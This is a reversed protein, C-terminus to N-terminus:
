QEGGYLLEFSQYHNGTYYILGDNSFVIRKSGRSSARLTDIDCEYYVRGKKGPLRGEFNGFRDGGICADEKFPRLDEGQWGLARAEKKTIFNKPLEGYTLIYLAVDDKSTYVGDRDLTQQKEAAKTPEPTSKKEATPAATPKVTKRPTPAPTAKATRQATELALTSEAAAVSSAPAPSATPQGKTGGGFVLWLIVALALLALGLLKQRGTQNNQGKNQM